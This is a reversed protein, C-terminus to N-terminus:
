QRALSLATGEVLHFPSLPAGPFLKIVGDMRTSSVIDGSFWEQYRHRATTTDQFYMTVAPLYQYFNVDVTFSGTAGSVDQTYTGPAAMVWCGYSSCQARPFVIRFSFGGANTTWTGALSGSDNLAAPNVNCAIAPWVTAMALSRFRIMRFRYM